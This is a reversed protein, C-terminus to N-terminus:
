FKTAPSETDIDTYILLTYYTGLYTLVFGLGEGYDSSVSLGVHGSDLVLIKLGLGGQM